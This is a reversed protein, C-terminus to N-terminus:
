RFFSLVVSMTIATIKVRKWLDAARTNLHLIDFYHSILMAFFVHDIEIIKNIISARVAHSLLPRVQLLDIDILLIAPSERIHRLLFRARLQHHFAWVFSTSSTGLFYDASVSDFFFNGIVIHIKYRNIASLYSQLRLFIGSLYIYSVIIGLLIKVLTINM